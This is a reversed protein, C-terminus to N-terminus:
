QNNRLSDRAGALRGTIAELSPHRQARALAQAREYSTIADEFRGAAEYGRALEDHAGPSDPYLAVRRRFLVIALDFAERTYLRDGLISFMLEPPQVEYGFRLSLNAYHQDLADFTGDELVRNTVNFSLAWDEFLWRMASHLSRLPATLHNEDAVTALTWAPGDTSGEASLAAAVRRTASDIAPNERGALSLYLLRPGRPPGALATAARVVTSDYQLAPSSAVYAGFAGPSTTATYVAFLGGLSHGILVSFPATNFRRNVVPMVEDVLFRRFPEAGRSPLMDRGRETTPIGVVIMEPGRLYYALFDTLATTYQFYVDADLLYVVPLGPRSESYGPPTWVWIPREENLSSSRISIVAGTRPADYLAQMGALPSGFATPLGMAIYMSIRGLM